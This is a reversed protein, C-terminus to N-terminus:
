EEMYHKIIDRLLSENLYDLDDILMENVDLEYYLNIISEPIKEGNVQCRKLTGARYLNSSEQTSIDFYQFDGSSSLYFAKKGQIKVTAFFGVVNDPDIPQLLTERKLIDDQGLLIVDSPDDGYKIKIEFEFADPVYPMFRRFSLFDEYILELAPISAFLERLSRDIDASM